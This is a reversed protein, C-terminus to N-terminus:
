KFDPYLLYKARTKRFKNLDDSWSARIADESMGSRIQERLRSTGALKDFFPTFFQNQDPCDKYFDLLWGLHLRGYNKGELIPFNSLDYGLCRVDKFPPNAAKGQIAIPTFTYKGKKYWPAGIVQFPKSTGRGLSVPTGEFFCVSPYLYISQMNPLNPSPAVPLQYSRTHTYNNMPVVRLRCQAGEPLWKEGNIMRAYEGITMGHVVPVPHMGVFSRFSTDLVPGDIYHGNPNPRDLVILTLNHEACAEMVYHLTSIYTYFRAGVDQIDFVIFEIDQLDESLPKKKNGYLSVVRIGTKPDKGDTIAAGAEAEGRFGHEPAFVASIQVGLRTLTDVLHTKGITATPNVVLGVSKGKIIPLYAELQMAGTEIAPPQAKLEGVVALLVVM